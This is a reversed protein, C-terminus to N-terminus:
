EDVSGLIITARQCYFKDGKIIGTVKLRTGSKMSQLEEMLTSNNTPTIEYVDTGERLLFSKTLVGCLNGQIKFETM